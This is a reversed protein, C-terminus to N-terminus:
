KVAEFLQIRSNDRDAIFVSGSPGLCIQGPYYLLGNKRGMGLQRALFSGDQGFSVLAGGNQDVVLLNGRADVTLYGPFSLYERLNNVLPAFEKADGSAAYIIGNTSDALYITGKGDVAVDVMFGYGKPFPAQSLFKGGQDLVLVREAFIDLLYFRGESDIKFASAIFAPAPVGQPDLYGQFAGAQSIRVIRRSKADLAYIDGKASLQVRVPNALQAPRLEAGGKVSDGDLTYRVLRGNGSDAVVLSSADCAVGEPNKLEVGKEDGYITTLHKIKVMDAAFSLTPLLSIMALAMSFYRCSRM